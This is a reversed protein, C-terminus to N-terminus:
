SPPASSASGETRSAQAPPTPGRKAYRASSPEVRYRWEEILRGCEPCNGQSERLDYGCGVCLGARIRRLREFDSVRVRLKLAVGVGLMVFLLVIMAAAFTPRSWRGFRAVMGLLVLSAPISLYIAVTVAAAAWKSMGRKM